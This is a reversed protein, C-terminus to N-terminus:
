DRRLRAGHEKKIQQWRRVRKRGAEVRRHVRALGYFLAFAGVVVAWGAGSGGSSFAIWAGAGGAIVVSLRAWGLWSSRRDLADLRRDMREAYRRYHCRRPSPTSM